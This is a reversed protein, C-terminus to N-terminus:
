KKKEPKRGYVVSESGPVRHMVFQYKATKEQNIELDINMEVIKLDPEATIRALRECNGPIDMCRTRSQLTNATVMVGTATEAIGNSDVVMYSVGPSEPEKPPATRAGPLFGLAGPNPDVPEFGFLMMAPDLTSAGGPMDKGDPGRTEPWRINLECQVGPAIGFGICEASGSVKRIDEDRGQAHVDVNGDIVFSGVLRALFDFSQQYDQFSLPKPKEKSRHGEVTIEDLQEDAASPGPASAAPILAVLSGSESM